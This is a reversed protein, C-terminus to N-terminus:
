IIRLMERDSLAERFSGASGSRRSGGPLMSGWGVLLVAGAVSLTALYLCALAHGSTDIAIGALLPGLFNTTAGVLSSNSFNRAREHPASLLGVINQLLVNYLSFGVGM